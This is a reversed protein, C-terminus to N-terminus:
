SAATRLGGGGSGGGRSRRAAMGEVEMKEVVDMEPWVGEEEGLEGKGIEWEEM